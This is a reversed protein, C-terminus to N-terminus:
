RFEISNNVSKEIVFLGLDLKNKNKIIKWTPTCIKKDIDTDSMTKIKDTISDIMKLDKQKLFSINAEQNPIFIKKGNEKHKKIAKRKILDKIAVKIDAIILSHKNKIYKCNTITDGFQFYRELDILWLIKSLDKDNVKNIIYLLIERLDERNYVAM